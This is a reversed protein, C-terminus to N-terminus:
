SVFGHEVAVAGLAGNLAEKEAEAAARSDFRQADYVNETFGCVGEGRATHLYMPGPLELLWCFVSMRPCNAHAPDGHHVDGCGEYHTTGLVARSNPHDSM